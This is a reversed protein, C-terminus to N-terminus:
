TVASSSSPGIMSCSVRRMSWPSETSSNRRTPRSTSLVTSARPRRQCRSSRTRRLPLLVTTKGQCGGTRVGTLRPETLQGRRRVILETSSRRLDIETDGPWDWFLGGPSHQALLARLESEYESRRTASSRRRPTPCPTITPWSPTSTVSTIREVRHTCSAHKASGARRSRGRGASTQGSRHEAAPVGEAGLYEAILARVETTPFIPCTRDWVAVSPGPGLSQGLRHGRGAGVPRLGGRDRCFSRGSPLITRVHRSSLASLRLEPIDEAM